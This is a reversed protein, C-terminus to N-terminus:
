NGCALGVAPMSGERSVQCTPDGIRIRQRRKHWLFVFALLAALSLTSPEPVQAARLFLHSAWDASLTRDFGGDRDFDFSAETFLNLESNFIWDSGLLSTFVSEGLSGRNPNLRIQANFPLGLGLLDIDLNLLETAFVRDFEDRATLTFLEELEAVIDRLIFTQSGYHLTADVLFRFREVRSDGVVDLEDPLNSLDFMGKLHFDDLFVDFGYKQGGDSYYACNVGPVCDQEPNAIHFAAVYTGWVDKAAVYEQNTWFRLPNDPDLTTASYDGWRNRMSPDTPDILEYTNNSVTDTIFNGANFTTNGNADTIGGWVAAAPGPGAPPGSARMVSAGIGVQNFANVAISPYIFNLEDHTLLGSQTISDGQTNLQMWSIAARDTNPDNVGAALWYGNSALQVSSSVKLAGSNIPELGSAAPYASPQPTFLQEPPVIIQASGLKAGNLFSDPIDLARVSLGDPSVSFGKYAVGQNGTVGLPDIAPQFAGTVDIGEQGKLGNVSPTAATLSTKPIGVLHVQSAKNADLDFMSASIYVGNNSYGLTPFDAWQKGDGDAKIQFGRWNSLAPDSGTTVAFLFTSDASNRNDVSV